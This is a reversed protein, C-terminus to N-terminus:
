PWVMMVSKGASFYTSSSRCREVEAAVSSSFPIRRERGLQAGPVHGVRGRRRTPPPAGAVDHAQAPMNLAIRFRDLPDLDDIGAKRTRRHPVGAHRFGQM